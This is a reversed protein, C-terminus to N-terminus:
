DDSARADRLTTPQNVTNGSHGVHQSQAAVERACWGSSATDLTMCHIVSMRARTVSHQSFSFFDDGSTRAANSSFDDSLM